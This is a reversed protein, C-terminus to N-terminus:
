NTSINIQARIQIHEFYYCNLLNQEWNEASQYCNPTVNGRILQTKLNDSEMKYLLTGTFIVSSVISLVLM